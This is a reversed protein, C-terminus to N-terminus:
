ETVFAHYLSYTTLVIVISGCVIDSWFILGSIDRYLPFVLLLVGSALNVALAGGHIPKSEVARRNNYGAVVVLVGGALVDARFLEVTLELLSPAAM